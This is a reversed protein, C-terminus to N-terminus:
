SRSLIRIHQDLDIHFHNIKVVGESPTAVITDSVIGEYTSLIPTKPTKDQGLILALRIITDKTSENVLPGIPSKKNALLLLLNESTTRIHGNIDLNPIPVVHPIM